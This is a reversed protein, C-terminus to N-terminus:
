NIIIRSINYEKRERISIYALICAAIDYKLIENYMARPEIKLRFTIYIM